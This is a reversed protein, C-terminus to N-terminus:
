SAARQSREAEEAAAVEPTRVPTPADAAVAERQSPDSRAEEHGTAPPTSAPTGSPPAAGWDEQGTVSGKFERIGRGLSRGMEPLRKAGFVLLLIVLFLLIHIPSPDFM